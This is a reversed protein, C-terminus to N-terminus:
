CHGVPLWHYVQSNVLGGKIPQQLDDGQVSPHGVPSRVAANRSEFGSSAPCNEGLGARETAETVVEDDNLLEVDVIVLAEVELAAVGEVVDSPM